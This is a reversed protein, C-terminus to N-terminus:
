RPERSPSSAVAFHAARATTQRGVDFIAVNAYRGAVRWRHRWKGQGQLEAAREREKAKLAEATTEGLERRLDVTTAVDFLM